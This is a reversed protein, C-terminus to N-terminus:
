TPNTDEITDQCNNREFNRNNKFLSLMGICRCMCQLTSLEYTVALPKGLPIQVLSHMYDFNIQSLMIGVTSINFNTNLKENQITFFRVKVFQAIVNFLRIM